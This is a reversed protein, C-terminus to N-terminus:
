GARVRITRGIVEFIERMADYDPHRMQIWANAM